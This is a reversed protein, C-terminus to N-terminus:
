SCKNCKNTKEKCHFHFHLQETTDSEKLGWPSYCVLSRQGHSKGPLLVLTPQWKRRCPIKQGLSWVWTERMAPLSKIGDPGGPFIWTMSTAIFLTPFCPHNQVETSWILEAKFSDSFKFYSCNMVEKKNKRWKLLHGEKWSRTWDLFM